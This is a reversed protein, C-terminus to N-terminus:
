ISCGDPGCAFDTTMSGASAVDDPLQARLWDRLAPPRGLFAGADLLSFQGDCELAFSPFGRAGVREMLRRTEAIHSHLAEGQAEDMALAFATPDLGIVGAMEILVDRDAIRRGEVYHAIQLRSILDLGRGALKDAALMAATPPASDFVASADRLLGEFYAEGFPQGTLVAIRRDHPMVYDRLQPTVPQRSDGAMMGGGHARVPLVERAAAVLPAAGYCWGCLPDYLYHLTTTSM